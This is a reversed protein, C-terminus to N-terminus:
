RVIPKLTTKGDRVVVEFDVKKGAHSARLKAEQARLSQALREFTVGATSENTSRKAELYKAYVQRMRQEDLAGNGSPSAAPRSAAERAAAAAERAAAAGAAATRAADAASSAFPPPPSQSPSASSRSAAAARQALGAFAQVPRAVQSVLPRAPAPAVPPAGDASPPRPLPTTPSPTRPAFAGSAPSPRSAGLASPTPARPGQAIPSLPTPATLPSAATRASGPGLELDLRIPEAAAGPAAPRSRGQAALEALRRRGADPDAAASPRAALVEQRSPQTPAIPRGPASGTAPPAPLPWGRLPQQAQRAATPSSEIRPHSPRSPAPTSAPLASIRAPEGGPGDHDSDVGPTPGFDLEMRAASFAAVATARARVEGDYTGAQAGPLDVRRSAPTPADDDFDEEYADYSELEEIEGEDIETPGRLKAKDAEQAAALVAFQEARKKGLITLAEKAGFRKAARLVDRKYTGNEIERVTRAWFQQFTNYRQVITQFKFRVGTNRIQEKRLLWVRREVDKRQVQPEIKEIGMFYQDYLARLREIRTELDEVERQQEASDM